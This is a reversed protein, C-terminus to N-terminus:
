GIEELNLGEHEAKYFGTWPEPEPYTDRYTKREEASIEAYWNSFQLWYDEGAGMRWGISYREIEPFAQWPPVVLGDADKRLVTEPLEAAAEKVMEMIEEPTEAM